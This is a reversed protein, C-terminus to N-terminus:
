AAGTAAGDARERCSARGIKAGATISLHKTVLLNHGGPAVALRADPGMIGISEFHQPGDLTLPTTTVGLDTSCVDSSWDGQLRTHRRRSSFFFYSSTSRLEDAHRRHAHHQQSLPERRAQRRATREKGVRREESRPAPRSRFTSRSSFTTAAPPSPWAPM